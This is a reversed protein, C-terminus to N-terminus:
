RRAISKIKILKIKDNEIDIKITDGAKFNGLLMGEALSDEILNQVVRRIPRAGNEPEYGEKSIFEEVKKTFKLLIGQESMREALQRLHINAIKFISEKDLPKFVIIKDIRNLFEPRFKDKLDKLIDKKMSNYKEIARQKSEEDSAKFGIEAQKTLKDMGVNSTMIIITNRFDVKRGKADTLYGDELIQLLINFVDPHAKEIEDLLILSYPNHRVAETLKGGEEYGVYGAPAGVLRSVNHKEMFESMDIKILSSENEFIESALIKALETKGVGTPGLFIFSGNPRKADSIGVRSRRIYKVIESIAEDQGIIKKKLQKELDLLAETEKKILKTIPVGTMSSVVSAIQEATISLEKFSNPRDRDIEKLEEKLRMEKIKLQAAKEYEQKIVAEEKEELLKELQKQKARLNKPIEGNEVRVRSAAEDVLDIAKDPLFRDTIYRYSFKAAAELAEDTITIKHHDEYLKRIGKLVMITEPVTLEKVIVPQFRRELAADKEIYKQYEDLTTAGITQLEGKSLSPKLINAADIAGEAAGAGVITHFEDIFLIVDKSKKVETIVKKLREEFEGRYKTGAVMGALDLTFVRKGLLVEPVEENVIKQALGEIIATKGVGPDGILIPNNKVRRNLISIVRIIERSRGIVPDLKGEKAQETLDFGFKDLSPTKKNAIDKRRNTVGEGFVSLDSLSSESFDNALLNEVQKKIEEASVDLRELINNVEYSEALTGLLLHETGVHMQDYRRALDMAKEIIKKSDISLGIKNFGSPEIFDMISRVKELTVNFSGLIDSALGERTGLLGLLIHNPKIESGSVEAIKQASILSKKANNTFRHFYQDM